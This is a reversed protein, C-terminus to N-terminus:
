FSSIVMWCVLFIVGVFLLLAGCFLVVTTKSWSADPPMDNAPAEGLVQGGPSFKDFHPM